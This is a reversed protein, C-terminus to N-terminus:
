NKFIVVSDVAVGDIYTIELTTNGRYVDMASPTILDAALYLVVGIIISFILMLIFAKTDTM